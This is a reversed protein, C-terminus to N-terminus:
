RLEDVTGSTFLTLFMLNLDNSAQGVAWHM